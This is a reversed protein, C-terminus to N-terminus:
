DCPNYPSLSHHPLTPDTRSRRVWHQPEREVGRAQDQDQEKYQDIECSRSREVRRAIVRRRPLCQPPHRVHSPVAWCTQYKPSSIFSSLRPLVSSFRFSTPPSTPLQTTTLEMARRETRSNLVCTWCTTRYRQPILAACSVKVAITKAKAM